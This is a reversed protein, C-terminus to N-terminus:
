EANTAAGQYEVQYELKPQPESSVHYHELDFRNLMRRMHDVGWPFAISNRGNADIYYSSCGGANWVTGVLAAQIRRNYSAQADRRVEIRTLGERRATCLADVIYQVQAEIVAFASNHGIGLNPGLVGFSNPFGAITTGRYAEPSGAWTEALSRGTTGRILNAMPPDTVHFGTGLIITDVPRYEGERTVVGGARVREVSTALLEVNPQAVAPYYNNSLLLRKCGLVYDPTLKRRLELDPISRRLHAAAVAQVRKMRDPHRFAVSFRELQRHMVRRMAETAGPLRLMARALVAIPADPKPLIWQPTRQFVHLRSVLPQIEPVFQIASAGTGIVAVRRDHLDHDHRWRSSHFLTGRFDGLGPLKPIIPEHLYGVCSLVFRAHYARRATRVVWRRLDENWTASEVGEGFRVRDLVGYRSATDHIYTAIEARRAFVRTWDPKQAFSYSYLSSPVDCACGPYTNDRWTGGIADAKELILVDDFGKEGLRIAAGIGSLGAGVVLVNVKQAAEVAAAQM